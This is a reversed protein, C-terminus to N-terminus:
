IYSKQTSITIKSMQSQGSIKRRRLRWSKIPHVINNEIWPVKSLFLRTYLRCIRKNFTFICFILIGNAGAFVVFLFVFIQQLKTLWNDTTDLSHTKLSLSLAVLSFHRQTWSQLVNSDWSYTISDFNKLLCSIHVWTKMCKKYIM